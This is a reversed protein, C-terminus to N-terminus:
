ESSNLYTAGWDNNWKDLVLSWTNNMSRHQQHKIISWCGKFTVDAAFSFPARSTYNIFKKIQLFFLTEKKLYRSIQTKTHSMISTVSISLKNPTNKKQLVILIFGPWISTKQLKCCKVWHQHSSVLELGKSSKAISFIALEPRKQCNVNVM